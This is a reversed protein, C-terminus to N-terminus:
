PPKQSPHQDHRHLPHHYETSAAAAEKAAPIAVQYPMSATQYVWAEAAEVMAVEVALFAVEEEVVLTGAAVVLFPFAEEVVEEGAAEEM